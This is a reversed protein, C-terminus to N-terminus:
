EEERRKQEEECEEEDCVSIDYESYNHGENIVKGCHECEETYFVWSPLDDEPHYTSDYM